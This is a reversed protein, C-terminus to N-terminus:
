GKEENAPNSSPSNFYYDKDFKDSCWEWVNGTMDYLGLENAGDNQHRGVIWTKGKSNRKFWSVKFPDNSGSYLYGKSYVGGRASFEWEAETPLRYNNFSCFENAGRWSVNIVPYNEYGKQPQWKETENNFKLGWKHEGILLEKENSKYENIFTAFQKNTVEYKSIQFSSVTVNHEHNANAEANKSGMVFTGGSVPIFEMEESYSDTIIKSDIHLPKNFFYFSFALAIFLITAALNKFLKKNKNRILLSSRLKKVNASQLEISEPTYYDFAVLSNKILYEKAAIRGSELLFEKENDNLRFQLTSIPRPDIIITQDKFKRLAETDSSETWISLLEKLISKNKSHGEFIKPGLYLGIFKTDPNENLLIEVPYNNQAGGDFTKIGETEQPTFILPISMSCRAAFAARTNKKAPDYSDFVLANKGRRSAYVTVRKPLDELLIDVPSDLKKSLLHDLWRTFSNAEYLGRKSILNWVKKILNADKFDSFDKTSLIENLEDTKYGSALLIAAIAGASTGAYWHFDFVRELEEIAGVYALGKIGGGKMILTIKEKM